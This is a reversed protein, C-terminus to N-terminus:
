PIESIDNLLICEAIKKMSVRHNMAMKQLSRYTESEPVQYRKTLIFQAACVTADLSKKEEIAKKVEHAHVRQQWNARTLMLNTLLGFPKVPRELVAGANMELVSQLTSPDEFEVIVIVPPSLETLSDALTKVQSRYEPEVSIIAVEINEPLVKPIPWIVVPQCSIRVLQKIILQTESTPPLILGVSLGALDKLQVKNRRREDNKM